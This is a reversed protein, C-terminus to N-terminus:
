GQVGFDRDGALGRGREQQLSLIVVDVADVIREGVVDSQFISANGRFEMEVGLATM